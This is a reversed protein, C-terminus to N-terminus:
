SKAPDVAKPVSPLTQNGNQGSQSKQHMISQFYFAVITLFAGSLNGVLIDFIDEVSSPVGHFLLLVILGFLGLTITIALFIQLNSRRKLLIIELDSKQEPSLDEFDTNTEDPMLTQELSHKKHRLYDEEIPFNVAADMRLGARGRGRDWGFNRELAFSDNERSEEAFSKVPRKLGGV